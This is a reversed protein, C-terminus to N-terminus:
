QPQEPGGLCLVAQVIASNGAMSTTGRTAGGEGGEGAYGIISDLGTLAAQYAAYNATIRDRSYLYFPSEAVQTHAHTHSPPHLTALHHAHWSSTPRACCSV